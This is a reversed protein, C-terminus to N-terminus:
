AKRKINKQEKGKKYSKLVKKYKAIAVDTLDRRYGALQKRLKAEGRKACKDVGTVMNRGKKTNQVLVPFEKDGNKQSSVGVVRKNALGSFKYTNLGTVNGKESTFVPLNKQKKIFSSNNRILQWILDGSPAM